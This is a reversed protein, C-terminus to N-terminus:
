FKDFEVSAGILGINLVVWIGFWVSHLYVFSLSGAFATVKDAARDQTRKLSAVIKNADAVRHALKPILVGDEIGDARDLNLCAPCAPATTTDTMPSLTADTATLLRGPRIATRGSM